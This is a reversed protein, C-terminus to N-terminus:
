RYRWDFHISIICNANMHETQVPHLNADSHLYIQVVDFAPAFKCGHLNAGSHLNKFCRECSWFYVWPAFKCGPAFQACSRPKIQIKIFTDIPPASPPWIFVHQCWARRNFLCLPEELGTLSSKVGAIKRQEHVRSCIPDPAFYSFGSSQLLDSSKKNM